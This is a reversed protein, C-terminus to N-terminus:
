GSDDLTKLRMARQAHKRFIGGISSPDKVIAKLDSGNLLILNAPSRQMEMEALDRAPKAFSGTTVVLVVNSRTHGVLGLERAVDDHSVTKTNKCQIQWRSFVYNTGEALVDVEGGGTEKARHRWHTVRLGLLRCLHMVLMELAVGRTNRSPSALEKLVEELPQELRVQTVGGSKALADLIPVIFESQFKPTTQIVHAKAGRGSTSKTVEIYGLDRLPYIVQERLDKLDFEVHSMATAHERVKSSPIPGKPDLAALARVFARMEPSFEDLRDVEELGFGIIERLRSDDSDLTKDIVGAEELWLKMTSIHVASPPVHIGVTELEHAIAQLNPRQQLRKLHGIARLLDIGHLELIIQKALTRYLRPLDGRVSHLARGFETFREDGGVIGYARLSLRVNKAIDIQSQRDGGAHNSFYEARISETFADTTGGSAEVLELVRPLSVQSPSFNVGFALDSKRQKAL